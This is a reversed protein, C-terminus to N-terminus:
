SKDKSKRNPDDKGGSLKSMEGTRNLEDVELSKEINEETAEAASVKAKEEHLQKLKIVFMERMAEKECQKNDLVNDIVKGIQDTM